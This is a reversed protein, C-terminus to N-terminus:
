SDKPGDPSGFIKTNAQRAAAVNSEFARVLDSDFTKSTSDVTYVAVRRGARHVLKKAAHNKQRKPGYSRLKAVVVKTVNAGWEDPDLSIAEPARAKILYASQLPL